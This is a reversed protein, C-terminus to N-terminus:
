RIHIRLMLSSSLPFSLQLTLFHWSGVCITQPWNLKPSSIQWIDFIARELRKVLYWLPLPRLWFYTAGCYGLAKGLNGWFQSGNNVSCGRSCWPMPWYCTLVYLKSWLTTFLRKCVRVYQRSEDETPIYYSLLCFFWVYHVNIYTSSIHLSRRNSMSYHKRTQSCSVSLCEIATGPLHQFAQNVPTASM